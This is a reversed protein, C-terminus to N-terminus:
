SHAGQIQTESIHVLTYMCDQVERSTQSLAYKDIVSETHLLSLNQYVFQLSVTATSNCIDGVEFWLQWVEKYLSTNDTLFLLDSSLFFFVEGPARWLYM